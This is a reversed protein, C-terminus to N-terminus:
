VITLIIDCYGLLQVNALVASIYRDTMWFVIIDRSIYGSLRDALFLCIRLIAAVYEESTQSPNLGM